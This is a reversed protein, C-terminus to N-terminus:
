HIKEPRGPRKRKALPLSEWLVLLFHFYGCMEEEGFMPTTQRKQLPLSKHLRREGRGRMWMAEGKGEAGEQSKETVSVDQAKRDSSASPLTPHPLLLSFPTVYGILRFERKECFSAKKHVESEQLRENSQAPASHSSRPLRSRFASRKM